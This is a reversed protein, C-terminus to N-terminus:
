VMCDVCKSEARPFSTMLPYRACALLKVIRVASVLSSQGPLAERVFTKSDGCLPSQQKTKSEHSYVLTAKSIVATKPRGERDPKMVFSALCQQQTLGKRFDCLDDRSRM